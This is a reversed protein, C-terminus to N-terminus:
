AEEKGAYGSGYSGWQKAMAAAIAPFSRSRRPDSRGYLWVFEKPFPNIGSPMLPPLGRTWLWTRKRYPSGFHHPEIKCQPEGIFRRVSKYPMPNEVAVMPANANYCAVFFDIAKAQLGLLEPPFKGRATTLYTCPPFAIVLDWPERLLTRADGQIHPGSVETPLLDCSIADHGEALFADRVIGTYECPVFVRMGCGGTDSKLRVSYRVSLPTLPKVARLTWWLTPSILSPPLRMGLACGVCGERHAM